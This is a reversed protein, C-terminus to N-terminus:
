RKDDIHPPLLTDLLSLGEDHSEDVATGIQRKKASIYANDADKTLRDWAQRYKIRQIPSLKWNLPVTKAWEHPFRIVVERFRIDDGYLNLYHDLWHLHAPDDREVYDKGNRLLEIELEAREAQSAVRVNALAMLPGLTAYQWGNNRDSEKSAGKVLQSQREPEHVIRILIIHNFPRKDHHDRFISTDRTLSNRVNTVRHIFDLATLIGENDVYGGDVIHQLPITDVPPRSAPSVYSFTASLRAATVAALDFRGNMMTLFDKASAEAIRRSKSNKRIPDVPPMPITSFLVRQGTEAETANFCVFPMESQMASESLEKLTPKWASIKENYSDLRERWRREQAMGRDDTVIFPLFLRTTDPFIAGWTVAELSSGSAKRVVAQLRNELEKQGKQIDKQSRGSDDRRAAAERFDSFDDLYVLTGISGGSVASIMKLHSSFSAGYRAHLGGLVQATWAAAHIGGGPATIVILPRCDVTGEIRESLTLFDFREPNKVESRGGDLLDEHPLAPCTQVTPTDSLQEFYHDFRVWSQLVVGVVVICTVPINYYDLFFSLASLALSWLGLAFVLYFPATFWDTPKVPSGMTTVYIGFYSILFTAAFFALQQHGPLLFRVQKGHEDQIVPSYGPGPWVTSNQFSRIVDSLVPLTVAELAPEKVLPFFWLSILPLIKGADADRLQNLVDDPAPVLLSFILGLLHLLLYSCIIGIAFGFLSVELGLGPDDSIMSQYVATTTTDGSPSYVQSNSYIAVTLPLAVTGLFWPITLSWGWNLHLRHTERSDGKMKQALQADPRNEQILRAVNRVSDFRLRGLTVIVAFQMCLVTSTFVCLITLAVMQACTSILFINGLMSPFFTVAIPGLMILLSGILLSFRAHWFLRIAHLWKRRKKRTQSELELESVHEEGVLFGNAEGFLPPNFHSAM